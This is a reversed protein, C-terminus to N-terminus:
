LGVTTGTKELTWDADSMSGSADLCLVLDFELQAQVHASFFLGALLFCVVAGKFKLVPVFSNISRKFKM